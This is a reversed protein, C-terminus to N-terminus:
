CYFISELVERFNVRQIYKGVWILQSHQDLHALVPLGSCCKGESIGVTKLHLRFLYFTALTGRQIDQRFKDAM